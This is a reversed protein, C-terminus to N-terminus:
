DGANPLGHLCSNHCWHSISLHSCHLIDHLHKFCGPFGGLLQMSSFRSMSVKETLNDNGFHARWLPTLNGLACAASFHLSLQGIAWKVSNLKWTQLVQEGKFAEDAKRARNKDPHLKLALKKYARKIDDDSADKQLGLVDYHTKQALIHAVQLDLCGTM